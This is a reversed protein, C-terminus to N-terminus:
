VEFGTSAQTGALMSVTPPRRTPPYQAGGQVQEVLLVAPPNLERRRGGTRAEAAQWAVSRCRRGRGPHVQDYELALPRAWVRGKDTAPPPPGHVQEAGLQAREEEVRVRRARRVVSRM